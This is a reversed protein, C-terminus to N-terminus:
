PRPRKVARRVILVGVVMALVVYFLMPSTPTRAVSHVATIGVAFAQLTGDASALFIRGGDV